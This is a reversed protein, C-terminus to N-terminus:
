RTNKANNVVRPKSTSRYPSHMPHQIKQQEHPLNEFLCLGRMLNLTSYSYLIVVTTPFIAHIFIRSVITCNYLSPSVSHLFVSHMFMRYTPTGFRNRQLAVRYVVTGLARRLPVNGHRGLM